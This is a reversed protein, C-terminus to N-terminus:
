VRRYLPNMVFLQGNQYSIRFDSTPPYYEFQNEESGKKKRCLPCTDSYKEWKRLCKICFKHNCSDFSRLRKNNFCIPCKDKKFIGIIM